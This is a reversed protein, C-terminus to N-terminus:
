HFVGLTLSFKSVMMPIGCITDLGRNSSTRIIHGIDGAAAFTAKM